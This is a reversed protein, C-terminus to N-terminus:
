DGNIFYSCIIKREREERGGTKKKEKEEDAPFYFM